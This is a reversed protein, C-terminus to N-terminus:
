KIKLNLEDALQCVSNIKRIYIEEKTEKRFLRKLFKMM